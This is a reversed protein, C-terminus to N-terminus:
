LHDSQARQFDDGFRRMVRWVDYLCLLQFSERMMETTWVKNNEDGLRVMTWSQMTRVRLDERHTNFCEVSVFLVKM